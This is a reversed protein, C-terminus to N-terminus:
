KMVKVIQRLIIVKLIGPLSRSLREIKTIVCGKITRSDM